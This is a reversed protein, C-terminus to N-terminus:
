VARLRIDTEREVYAWEPSGRLAGLLEDFLGADHPAYEFWTLFDFPENDSLDRCHHLRRAIQPLYNMGLRIHRSQEEMVQRREDQTLTWWAPSKRIPILAACTHGIQGLGVQRSVLADREAREVYRENSTIGRLSWPAPGPGLAQAGAEVRVHSATPLPAGTVTTHNVVAWPSHHTASFTFLRTSM